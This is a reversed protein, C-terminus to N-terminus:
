GGSANLLKFVPIMIQIAGIYKNPMSCFQKGISRGNLLDPNGKSQILPTPCWGSKRGFFLSHLFPDSWEPGVPDAMTPHSIAITQQIRRGPYPRGIVNSVLQMMEAVPDFVLM